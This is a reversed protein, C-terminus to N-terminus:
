LRTTPATPRSCAASAASLDACRSRGTTPSRTTELESDFVAVSLKSQAGIRAEFVDIGAAKAAKFLKDINLM